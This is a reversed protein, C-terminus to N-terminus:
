EKGSLHSMFGKNELDEEPVKEIIAEDDFALVKSGYYQHTCYKNQMLEPLNVLGNIDRSIIDNVQMEDAIYVNKFIRATTSHVAANCCKKIDEWESRPGRVVYITKTLLSNKYVQSRNHDIIDIVDRAVSADTFLKVGSYREELANVETINQVYIDVEYKATLLKLFKTVEQSWVISDYSTKNTSVIFYAVKNGVYECCGDPHLTKIAVLDYTSAYEDNLQKKYQAVREKERGLTLMAVRIVYIVYIPIILWLPLKGLFFYAYVLAPAGAIVLFKILPCMRGEHEGNFNDPDLLMGVKPQEKEEDM